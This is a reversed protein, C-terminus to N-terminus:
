LAPSPRGVADGGGVNQSLPMGVYLGSIELLTYSRLTKEFPV